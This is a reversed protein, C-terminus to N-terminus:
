FEQRLTAAAHFSIKSIASFHRRIFYPFILCSTFKNQGTNEQRKM